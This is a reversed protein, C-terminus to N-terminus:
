RGEGGEAFPSGPPSEPPPIPLAAQEVSLKTLSFAVSFLDSSAQLSYNVRIRGDPLREERVPDTVRDWKGTMDRAYVLWWGAPFTLSVEAAAPRTASVSLTLLGSKEVSTQVQIRDEGLTMEVREGALDLNREASRGDALATLRAVGSPAEGFRAALDLNADPFAMPHERQPPLYSLLDLLVPDTEGFVDGRNKVWLQPPGGWARVCYGRPTSLWVGPPDGASVILASQDLPPEGPYPAVAFSRNRQRLLERALRAAHEPSQQQYILAPGAEALLEEADFEPMETLAEIAPSPERRPVFYTQERREIDFLAHAMGMLL